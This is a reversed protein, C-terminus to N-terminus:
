RRKFTYMDDALKLGLLKTQTRDIGNNKNFGIFITNDGFESNQIYTKLIERQQKIREKLESINDFSFINKNTDITLKLTM